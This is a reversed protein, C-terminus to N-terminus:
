ENMAFNCDNQIVHFIELPVNDLMFFDGHMRAHAALEHAAVNCERRVKSVKCLNFERMCLKAEEYTTWWKANNREKANVAAVVAACDSEVQM